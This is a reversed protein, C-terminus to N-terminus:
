QHSSNIQDILGQLATQKDRNKQILAKKEDVLAQLSAMQEAYYAEETVLAYMQSKFEDITIVEAKTATGDANVTVVPEGANLYGITFTLTGVLLISKWTKM